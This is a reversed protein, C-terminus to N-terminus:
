GCRVDQPKRETRWLERWVFISLKYLLKSSVAPRSGTSAPSGEVNDREDVGLDGDSAMYKILDALARCSDSCTRVHLINNSARLDTKAYKQFHHSIYIEM